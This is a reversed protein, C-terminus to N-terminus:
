QKDRLLNTNQDVLIQNLKVVNINTTTLEDSLKVIQQFTDDIRKTNSTVQADVHAAWTVVGGIIIALGLTITTSKNVNVTPM